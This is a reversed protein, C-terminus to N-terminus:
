TSRSTKSDVKTGGISSIHDFIALSALRFALGEFDLIFAIPHLRQGNNVKGRKRQSESAVAITAPQDLRPGASTLRSNQAPFAGRRRFSWIREAELRRLHLM